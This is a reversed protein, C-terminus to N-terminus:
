TPEYSSHMIVTVAVRVSRCWLLLLHRERFDPREVIRYVVFYHATDGRLVLLQKEILDGSDLPLKLAQNIASGQVIQITRSIRGYAQDMGLIDSILHSKQFRFDRRESRSGIDGWFENVIHDPINLIDHGAIRLQGRECM